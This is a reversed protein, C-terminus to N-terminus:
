VSIAMLGGGRGNRERWGGRDKETGWGGRHTPYYMRFCRDYLVCFVFVCLVCLDTQIFLLKTFGLVVEVWDLLGQLTSRHSTPPQPRTGNELFKM